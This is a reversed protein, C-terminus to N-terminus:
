DSFKTSWPKWIRPPAGGTTLIAPNLLIMACFPRPTIEWSSAGSPRRGGPTYRTLDGSHGRRWGPAAVREAILAIESVTNTTPPELIRIAQKPVGLRELVQQDYEEETLHHIGLRAFAEDAGRPDDRFLWVEPAWGQRFIEAAEMARYPIHGSLVVIARAQQLTEDVVLWRGVKRFAWFAAGAMLALMVLLILLRRGMRKFTM